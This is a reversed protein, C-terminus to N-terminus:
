EEEGNAEKELEMKEYAKFFPYYILFSVAAVVAWLIFGKWDNSVFFSNIGTPLFSMQYYQAPIAVLGAKLVFYVITPCIFSVIWMPIMLVPNMAIPLGYVTPENINFITPVLITRGISKLRKSKSLCAFVVLPLTMGLGGVNLWGNFITETTNINTAPLGAAVAEINGQIGVNWITIVLGAVAWPSIGFSYLFIMIFYCLMFGWYSQGLTLAPGFITALLTFLNINFLFSIIDTCVIIITVPLLTNFWNQIFSPLLSDEKIFPHDLLVNFVLGTVVGLVLSVLLGSAGMNGLELAGSGVTSNLMYAGVSTFGAVVAQGGHKKKNLLEYPILFAVMIGMLGLTYDSIRADWPLWSLFGIGSLTKLLSIISGLLIFPMITQFASQIAHLYANHSLKAAKPAVKETMWQILKQM